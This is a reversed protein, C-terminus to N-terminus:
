NKGVRQSGMSQLGGAWWPGAERDMSNELYSYQPPNGTGVGPSRGSGPILGANRAEGANGPPNKLLQAM